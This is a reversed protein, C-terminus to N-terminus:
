FKIYQQVTTIFTLICHNHTGPAQQGEQAAHLEAEEATLDGPKLVVVVPKEDEACDIDETDEEDSLDTSTPRQRQILASLEIIM